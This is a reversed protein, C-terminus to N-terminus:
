LTQPFKNSNLTYSCMHSISFFGPAENRVRNPLENARPVRERLLTNKSARLYSVSRFPPRNDGNPNEVKVTPAATLSIFDM